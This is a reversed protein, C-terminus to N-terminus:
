QQQGSERPVVAVICRAVAILEGVGDRVRIDWVWTRRGRHLPVAEARLLGERRTRLHNCSIELGYCDEHARDIGLWTGVSAASEALAVTAGGHLVGMPQRSAPGVPMTMVVREPSAIEVRQSLAEWLSGAGAANLADPSIVARDVGSLRNTVAAVKKQATVNDQGSPGRRRRWICM